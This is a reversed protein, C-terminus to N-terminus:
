EWNWYEEVYKYTANVLEGLSEIDILEISFTEEDTDHVIVRFDGDKTELVVEKIVIVGGDPLIATIDDQKSFEAKHTDISSLLKVLENFCLIYMKQKITNCESLKTTFETAFEEVNMITFQKILNELLV